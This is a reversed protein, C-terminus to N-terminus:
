AAAAPKVLHMCAVARAAPARDAEVPGSSFHDRYRADAVDDREAVQWGEATYRYLRLTSEAPAFADVLEDVEALSLARVWAFREPRGVPLTLYLDGGPKLVRNLEQMVRVAEAQM